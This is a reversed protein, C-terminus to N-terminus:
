NSQLLTSIDQVVPLVQSPDILFISQNKQNKENEWDYFYVPEWYVYEINALPQQIITSTTITAYANSNAGIMTNGIGTNGFVHQVTLITGTSDQGVIQCSGTQIQNNYINILENNAFMNSNTLTVDFQIVMNTNVVWDVQRRAYAQIQQNPGFMPIYYKQNSAPLADYYSVSINLTDEAWNNRFFAVLQQAYPISGYKQIIFDNFDANYLHWDYYPDIIGNTLYILWDIYPTQYYLNSIQDPRMENNLDYPYYYTPVITPSLNASITVRETINRVTTGNYSIIPFNEFYNDSM